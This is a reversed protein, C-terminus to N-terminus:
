GFETLHKVYQWMYWSKYCLFAKWIEKTAIKTNVTGYSTDHVHLNEKCELQVIYYIYQVSFMMNKKYIQM